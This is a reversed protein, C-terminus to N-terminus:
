LNRLAKNKKGRLEYKKSVNFKRTTLYKFSELPIKGIQMMKKSMNNQIKQLQSDTPYQKQFQDQADDLQTLFEGFQNKLNLSISQHSSNNHHDDQKSQNQPSKFYHLNEFKKDDRLSLFSGPQIEPLTAHSTQQLPIVRRVLPNILKGNLQPFKLDNSESRSKVLIQKQSKPEISNPLQQKLEKLQQQQQKLIKQNPPQPIKNKYLMKTTRELLQLVKQSQQKFNKGAEIAIEDKGFDLPILSQILQESNMSDRNKKREKEYKKDMENLANNHNIDTILQDIGTYFKENTSRGDEIVKSRQTFENDTQQLYVEIQPKSRFHRSNAIFKKSKQVIEAYDFLDENNSYSKSRKILKPLKKRNKKMQQDNLNKLFFKVDIFTDMSSFDRMKNEFHQEKTVKNIKMKKRENQLVKQINESQLRNRQIIEEHYHQDNSALKKIGRKKDLQAKVFKYFDQEFDLM